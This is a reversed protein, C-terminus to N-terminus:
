RARRRAEINGAFDISSFRLHKIEAATLTLPRRYRKAKAKGIQVWTAAVGSGADRAKLTVVRRKGKRRVKAATKPATTDARGPKLLKGNARVRGTQDLTVTGSKAAYTHAAGMREGKFSQATLAAGHLPVAISVPHNADTVILTTKGLTTVDALGGRKAQAPTIAGRTKTVASTHVVANTDYYKYVTGTDACLGESGPLDAGTLLFGKIRQQLAASGTESGHGVGCMYHLPIGNSAAGDAAGQAQSVRPVTGDGNGIAAVGVSLVGGLGTMLSLHTITPVGTGIVATYDVGNTRFGDIQRHGAQAKALLAPTAGLSAAFREVGQESLEHGDVKLWSGFPASPYLWFLGEYNRAGLQLDRSNVLADMEGGAPTDTDGELLAFVSKPAGNYPTGVTILRAVRKARNADDIYYRSVLGGMSHAWLVVKQASSDQLAQTITQDLGTISREVGTRWDYPYAYARRPLINSIFELATGYADFGAVSQVVGEFGPLTTANANCSGRAGANTYGDAKLAMHSFYSHPVKPWLWDGSCQIVSGLIGPVFIIPCGTPQKDAPLDNAAGCPTYTFNASAPASGTVHGLSCSTGPGPVSGSCQVAAWAGGLQQPPDGTAEVAYKGPAVRASYNGAADSVVTQAVTGGNDDTGSVRVKVGSLGEDTRTVVKGSVTAPGAGAVLWTHPVGSLTGFGLMWGTDNIDYAATLHWPSGAPLRADLLSIQGADWIVAGSAQSAGVITGANNIAQPWADGVGAGPLEPLLDEAGSAHRIVAGYTGSSIQGVIDDQDNITRNATLSGPGPNVNTTIVSAGDYYTSPGALHGHDNIATVGASVNVPFAWGPATTFAYVHGGTYWAGTAHGDPSAGHYGGAASGPYTHDVTGANSAGNWLAPYRFTGSSDTFEQYGFVNGGDDIAVGRSRNSGLPTTVGDQWRVATQDAGTGFQVGAIQGSNNVSFYYGASTPGLDIVDLTPAAAHALGTSALFLLGSGVLLAIRSM